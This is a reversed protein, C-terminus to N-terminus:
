NRAILLTYNPVMKMYIKFDKQITAHSSLTYTHSGFLIYTIMGNRFFLTQCKTSIVGITIIDLVMKM